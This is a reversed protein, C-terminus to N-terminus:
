ATSFSTPPQDGGEEQLSLARPPTAAESFGVAAIEVGAAPYM